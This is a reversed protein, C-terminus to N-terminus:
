TVKFTYTKTEPQEGAKLHPHKFHFVLSAIDTNTPKRRAKIIWYQKSPGGCILSSKRCTTGADIIKIPLDKPLNHPGQWAYGATISSDLELRYTEGKKLEITTSGDSYTSSHFIVATLLLIYNYKKM